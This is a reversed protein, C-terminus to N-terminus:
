DIANVEIGLLEFTRITQYAQGANRSFRDWKQFILYDINNKHKKAFELLRQFEPRDFTKASFDETFLKVIEINNNDCYKILHEEQYRLSYGKAAQEDTSVRVYLIAKKKM